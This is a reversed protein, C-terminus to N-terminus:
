CRWLLIKQEDIGYEVEGVLALVYINELRLSGQSFLFYSHTYGNAGLNATTSWELAGPTDFSDTVIIGLRKIDKFGVQHCLKAKNQKTKM